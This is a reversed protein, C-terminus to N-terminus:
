GDGIRKAFCFTRRKRTRWVNFGRFADWSPMSVGGDNGDGDFCWADGDGKTMLAM